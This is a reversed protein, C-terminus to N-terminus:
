GSVRVKGHSGGCAVGNKILRAGDGVSTIGRLDGCCYVISLSSM